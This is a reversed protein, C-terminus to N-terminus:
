EKLISSASIKAERRERKKEELTAKERRRDSVAVISKHQRYADLFRKEALKAQEESLDAKESQQRALSWLKLRFRGRLLLSNASGEGQGDAYEAAITRLSAVQARDDDAERRADSLRRAYMQRTREAMRAIKDLRNTM